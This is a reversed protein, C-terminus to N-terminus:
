ESMYFDHALPSSFGPTWFCVNTAIYIYVSGGRSGRPKWVYTKHFYLVPCSVMDGDVRRTWVPIPFMAAYKINVM